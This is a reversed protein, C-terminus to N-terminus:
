LLKSGPPARPTRITTPCFLDSGSRPLPALAEKAPPYESAREAKLAARELRRQAPLSVVSGQIPLPPATVRRSTPSDSAPFDEVRARRFHGQGQNLWVYLRRHTLPQEIVVDAAGDNNVDLATISLAPEASEFTLQTNRAASFYLEVRFRNTNHLRGAGSLVAADARQDNDFDAAAIVQAFKAEFGVSIPQAISARSLAGQLGDQALAPPACALLVAAVFAFILRRDM